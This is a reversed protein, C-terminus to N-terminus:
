FAFSPAPAFGPLPPAGADFQPLGATETETRV